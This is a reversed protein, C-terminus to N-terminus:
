PWGSDRRARHVGVLVANGLEPRPEALDLTCQILRRAHRAQPDLKTISFALRFSRYGLAFAQCRILTVIPDKPPIRAWRGCTRALFQM